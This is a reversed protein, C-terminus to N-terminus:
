VWFDRVIQFAEANKICIDMGRKQSMIRIGEPSRPHPFGKVESEYALFAKIKQEVFNEINVYFNPIFPKNNWETSSVTEFCAVKIKSSIPRTGVMVANFIVRHDENIDAESHTYVVDPKVRSIVRGIKGNVELSSSSCLHLAPIDCYFRDKTGLIKDVSKAEEVKTNAYEESWMPPFSKTVICVYIEHGLSAHRLLTGGCGLIEDDPHAAVVLVKV